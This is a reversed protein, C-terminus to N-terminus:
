LICHLDHRIIVYWDAQWSGMVCRDGEQQQHWWRNDGLEQGQRGFDHEAPAHLDSYWLDDQRSQSITLM